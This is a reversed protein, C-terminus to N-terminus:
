LHGIQDIRDWIGSCIAVIILCDIKDVRVFLIVQLDEERGSPGEGSNGERCGELEAENVLEGAQAQLALLLGAQGFLEQRSNQGLGCRLLQAPLCPPSQQRKRRAELHALQRQFLM